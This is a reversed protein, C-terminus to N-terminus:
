ERTIQARVVPTIAVIEAPPMEQQLKQLEAPDTTGAKMAKAVTDANAKIRARLQAALTQANVTEVIIDELGNATLWTHLATQDAVKVQIDDQLRCTGIGDVGIKTTDHEDFATPVTTFRIHNYLAEGPGKIRKAIEGNFDQIAAMMKVATTPDKITGKDILAARETVYSQLTMIAKAADEPTVKFGWDIKAPKAKVQTM